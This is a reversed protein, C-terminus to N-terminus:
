RSESARKRALDLSIQLGGPWAKAPLQRIQEYCTVAAAFDQRAEADIAQSWLARATEIATNDDMTPIPAAPPPVVKRPQQQESQRQVAQRDSNSAATDVPAPSAPAPADTRAPLRSPAADHKPPTNWELSSIKERITRWTGKAWQMTPERYEPKLYMMLAGAAAALVVMTVLVRWVRFRRGSDANGDPDHFAAALEMASVVSGDGQRIIEQARQQRAVASSESAQPVRLPAYADRALEADRDRSRASARMEEADDLRADVERLVPARQGPPSSERMELLVDPNTPPEQPRECHPCIAAAREIAGGCSYCLGFERSVGRVHAAWRWLQYTTPGRVISRPTVQGKNLLWLLTSFKMGPASPSRNQLVYWPGIRAKTAQRTAPTDEMTCRPCPEASSTKQQGCFPCVSKGVVAERAEKAASLADGRMSDVARSMEDDEPEVFPVRSATAGDPGFL